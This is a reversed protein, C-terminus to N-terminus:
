KDLDIFIEKNGDAMMKHRTNCVKEEADVFARSVYLVSKVHCVYLCEESFHGERFYPYQARASGM